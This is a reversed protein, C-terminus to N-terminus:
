ISNNMVEKDTVIFKEAMFVPNYSLKSKRLNELGMDEQRNIYKVGGFFKAAFFNNIASYIGKYNIDAKEFHVIGMDNYSNSGIAFARVKDDATIVGCYLGLADINNLASKIALKEAAAGRIDSQYSAWEDYLELIGKHDQPSYPRFEYKYANTFQNIHNRKGHFAKGTLNILDSANYIYDFNNRDEIVEFKKLYEPDVRSLMDKSMARLIFKQDKGRSYRYMKDVAATMDACPKKMVPPCFIIHRFFKAEIYIADADECVTTGDQINWLFLTTFDLNCGYYGECVAYKDFLAKDSLTIAKFDM